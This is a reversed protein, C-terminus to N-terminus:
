LRYGGSVTLVEGTIFSAADSLLFVVADAIDKPTGMRGLATMDVFAQKLADDRGADPVDIAGPAVANIRIGKPGLEKAAGRTWLDLAAKSAGYMVAGKPPLVANVSSINVMASGTQFHPLAAALLGHAAFLNVDFMAHCAAADYGELASVSIDGANHVVADLRGFREITAAVLHAPTTADTLDGQVTALHAGTELGPDTSNFHVMVDHSDRLAAAIGAGIGRAGGTILVSKRATVGQASM